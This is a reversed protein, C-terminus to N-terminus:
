GAALALGFAVTTMGALLFLSTFQEIIDSLKTM